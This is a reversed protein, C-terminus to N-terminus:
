RPNPRYKALPCKIVNGLNQSETIDKDNNQPNMNYIKSLKKRNQINSRIKCKGINNTKTSPQLQGTQRNDLVHISM